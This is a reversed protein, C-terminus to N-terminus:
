RRSLTGANLFTSGSYDGAIHRGQRTFGATGNPNMRLTDTCVWTPNEGMQRLNWTLAGGIRICSAQYDSGSINTGQLAWNILVTKEDDSIKVVYVDIHQNRDGSWTDVTSGTWTGALSLAPSAKKSTAEPKPKSKPTLERKPKPTPTTQPVESIPAPLRHATILLLVLILLGRFIGSMAKGSFM